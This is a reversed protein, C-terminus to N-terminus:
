STESLWPELRLALAERARSLRSKVTGLNTRTIEAIETYSREEFERLSFAIRQHAPLLAVAELLAARLESLYLEHEPNTRAPAEFWLDGDDMYERFKQFLVLPSRSRDRLENYALNAAIRYIWSSFKRSADFTHLHRYVRLFTEQAIDEAREKDGISRFVFNVVRQQYREVLVAFAQENGSLYRVILSADEHDRETLPAVWDRRTVIMPLAM